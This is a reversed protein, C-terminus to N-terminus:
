EEDTASKEAKAKGDASKEVKNAFILETGLANSVEIVKGVKQVEGAILFNRLVKVKMTKAKANIGGGVLAAATQSSIAM